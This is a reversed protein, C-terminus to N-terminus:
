FFLDVSIVQVNELDGYNSLAYDFSVDLGRFPVRVGAGFSYRAVDYNQKVGGRIAITENWEYELAYATRFPADFADSAEIAVAVRHDLSQMLTSRGGLIDFLAGLRFSSPLPFPETIFISSIARNGPAPDPSPREFTLNPGEDMTMDPGVNTISMGLVMGAVGPEFLTGFDFAFGEAVETWIRERIYKATVGFSLRDTLKRAFSIGLAMSGADVKRGTGMPEEITTEEISGMNVNNISVGFANQGFPVVFGAFQHQIGAYLNINSYSAVYRGTGTMGAPNWHLASGDTAIATYAGALGIARAGVELKLFSAATGGVRTVEQAPVSSALIVSVLMTAIAIRKM